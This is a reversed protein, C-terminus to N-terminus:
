QILPINYTAEVIDYTFKSLIEISINHNPMKINNRPSNSQHKSFTKTQHVFCNLSTSNRNKICEFREHCFTYEEENKNLDSSEKSILETSCKTHENEFILNRFNFCNAFASEYITHFNPGFSIQKFEDCGFFSFRGISTIRDDIKINIM